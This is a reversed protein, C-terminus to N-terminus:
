KETPCAFEKNGPISCKVSTRDGPQAYRDTPYLTAEAKNTCFSSGKLSVCIQDVSHGCVKGNAKMYYSASVTLKSGYVNFSLPKYGKDADFTISHPIVEDTREAQFNEKCEITIKTEASASVSLILVAIVALFSSKFLKM